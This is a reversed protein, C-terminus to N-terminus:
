VFAVAPAQAECINLHENAGMSMFHMASIGGNEFFVRRYFHVMYDGNMM